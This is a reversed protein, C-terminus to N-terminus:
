LRRPVRRSAIERLEDAQAATLLHLPIFFFALESQFFLLARRGDNWRYLDTWPMRVRAHVNDM